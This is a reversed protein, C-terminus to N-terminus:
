IEKLMQILWELGNDPSMLWTLYVSKMKDLREELEKVREELDNNSSKVVEVSEDVDSKVVEDSKVDEVEVVEEVDDVTESAVSEEDSKVEDEVTESAVSEEDSAEEVSATINPEEESVQEKMDLTSM